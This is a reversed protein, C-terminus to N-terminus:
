KKKMGKGIKKLKRAINGGGTFFSLFGGGSSSQAISCPEDSVCDRTAQEYDDILPTLKTEKVNKFMDITIWGFYICAVIVCCLIGKTRGLNTFASKIIFYSLVAM